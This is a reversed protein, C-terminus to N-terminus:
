VFYYNMTAHCYYSPYYWAFCELVWTNNMREYIVISVAIFSALSRERWLLAILVIDHPYPQHSPPLFAKEFANKHSYFFSSVSWPFWISDRSDAQVLFNLHRIKTCSCYISFQFRGNTRRCLGRPAEEYWSLFLSHERMHFDTKAEHLSLPVNEVRRLVSKFKTVRKTKERGNVRHSTFNIFSFLRFWFFLKWNKSEKRNTQNQNESLRSLNWPTKTM